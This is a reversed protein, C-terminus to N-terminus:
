KLIKCKANREDLLSTLETAIKPKDEATKLEAIKASIQAEVGALREDSMPDSFRIKEALGTLAAKVTEDTEDKVLLEVETQLERIYFVKGRVKGEVREIEGRGVDSGIMCVASVGAIVTCAIIASWLPATPVFVFVALAIIHLLLYVIGIHVIPIGLFKSKLTENRGFASKWIIIQAAFAIVTFAYAAWFAPTKATPVAFAVVSVLIFLIGLILCGKLGTKKM